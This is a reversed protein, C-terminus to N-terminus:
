YVFFESVSPSSTPRYTARKYSSGGRVGKLKKMFEADKVISALWLALAISGLVIFAIFTSYYSKAKDSSKEAETKEEEVTATEARSKKYGYRKPAAMTAAGTTSTSTTTPCTSGWTAVTDYMHMGTGCTAFLMVVAVFAFAQQAYTAAQSSKEAIAEKGKGAKYGMLVALAVFVLMGTWYSAMALSNTSDAYKKNDEQDDEFTQIRDYMDGALAGSTALAIASVATLVNTTIGLDYLAKAQDIKSAM